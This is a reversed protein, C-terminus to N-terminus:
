VDFIGSLYSTNENIQSSDSLFMNPLNLLAITTHILTLKKKNSLLLGNNFM